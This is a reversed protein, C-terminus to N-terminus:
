SRIDRYDFHRVKAQGTATSTSDNASWWAEARELQDQYKRYEERVAADGHRVEAKMNILLFRCAQIFLKAKAPSNSTDYDANDKYAAIVQADTSSSTLEAM